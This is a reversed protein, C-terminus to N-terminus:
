PRADRNRRQSQLWTRANEFAAGYKWHVRDSVEPHMRLLPDFGCLHFCAEAEKLSGFIQPLALYTNSRWCTGKPRFAYVILYAPSPRQQPSISRLRARRTAPHLRHRIFVNRGEWGDIIPAETM